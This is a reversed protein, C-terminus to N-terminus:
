LAYTSESHRLCGQVAHFRKARIDGRQHRRKSNRHAVIKQVIKGQTQNSSSRECGRVRVAKHRVRNQDAYIKSRIQRNRARERRNEPEERQSLFTELDTSQVEQLNPGDGHGNCKRGTHGPCKEHVRDKWCTLRRPPLLSRRM